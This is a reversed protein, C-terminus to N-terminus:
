DAPPIFAKGASGLGPFAGHRRAYLLAAASLVASAAASVAFSWWVAGLGWLSMVWMVAVPLVLQSLIAIALSPRVLGVSILLQNACVSAWATLFSLAFVALGSETMEHLLPEGTVFVSVIPGNLLIVLAASAIGVVACTRMLVMGMDWGRKGDGAGHNYSVAPQVAAAMGSFLSGTVTNVYMMIGLASVAMDGSVALLLANAFIMYLSGSLSTFFTPLGNSLATLMERRDFGSRVFRLAVTGRLFPVLSAAASICMSIVTALAASWLGWGLVALFLADLVINLVAALVNLNMSMRVKGCVRLYNDTAFFLLFLPSAVAFVKMYDAAMSALEPDAGMLLMAKESFLLGVALFAFSIAEVIAMSWTFLRRASAEDGRGLHMSIRVSSGSAILDSLASLVIIVPWALNMAALARGGLLQGVFIGDTISCVAWVMAAVAGPFAIRRFLKRVPMQAYMLHDDTM